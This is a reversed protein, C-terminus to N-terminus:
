SWPIEFCFCRKVELLLLLLLLLLPLAFVFFIDRKHGTNPPKSTVIAPPIL